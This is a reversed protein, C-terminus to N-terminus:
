KNLSVYAKPLYGFTGNSKVEVFAWQDDLTLAKLIVETGNDVTGNGPAGLAPGYFLPAAAMDGPLRIVADTPVTQQMISLNYALEEGVSSFVPIETGNVTGPRTSSPRPLNKTTLFQTSIYGTLGNSAVVYAWELNSSRAWVTVMTGAALRGVVSYDTSPGSRVNVNGGNPTVVMARYPYRRSTDWDSFLITIDRPIEVLEYWEEYIYIPEDDVIYIVEPTPTPDPWEIIDPVPNLDDPNPVPFTPDGYPEPTAFDIDWPNPTEPSAPPEPTEDPTVPENEIGPEDPQEQITPTNDQPENEVTQNDDQPENQLIQTDDQPQDPDVLVYGDPLPTAEGLLISPDISKSEALVCGTLCLLMLTVLLTKKM